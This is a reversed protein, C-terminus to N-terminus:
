SGAHTLLAEGLLVFLLTLILGYSLLNARWGWRSVTAPPCTPAMKWAVFREILVSVFFFPICLFIAASPILWDLDNEYPGLWPAQVTFAFIKRPVTGLGYEKGGSTAVLEVLLLAGWTAPIGVLTSAANAVASLALSRRVALGLLRRAVIAEVVVIPVFLVWSGPWVLYLMPVGANASAVSSFAFLVIASIFWIRRNL